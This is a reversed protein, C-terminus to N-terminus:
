RISSLVQQREIVEKQKALVVPEIVKDLNANFETMGASIDELMQQMRETLANHKNVIQKPKSEYNHYETIIMQNAPDIFWDGEVPEFAAGPKCGLLYSEGTFPYQYVLVKIKLKKNPNGRLQIESATYIRDITSSQGNRFDAGPIQLEKRRTLEQIHGPLQDDSFYTDPWHNVEEAIDMGIKYFLVDMDYQSFLKIKQM